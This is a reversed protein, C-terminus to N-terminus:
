LSDVKRGALARNIDANMRRAVFGESAQHLAQSADNIEGVHDGKLAARLVDMAATLTAREGDDLLAADQRMAETLLRLADEGEGRAELLRRAEWDDEAYAYADKLMAAIEGEGLGYSPKITIGARVGTSKEIASVSLLGDADVQFSVKIRATGAAMPPIDSLTFVGLSRCDAVREREGQVVNIRMATQGDRHTTFEQHKEIPITENRHVVKEVLGGMTEVGLSLPIVDLLLWDDGGNGALVNAQAAAGLAVVEDPNIKDYLPRGFFNAVLRRLSPMRTSGGVLVVAQIQEKAIAADRLVGECIDLTRRTLVATEAVFEAATIVCSDSGVCVSAKDKESLVEKAERAAALLLLEEAGSLRSLGMKEKARAAIVRDYDDGGLATDGGVAVVEFVGRTFRLLSLDFTGGGLDYVIYHGEAANDLGYALAAATPENLMRLVPLGALRCADRTAQRQADDFYAPVTVVAGDIDEENTAALAQRRLARLIDASVEVPSKDGGATQIKVMGDDGAYRYAYAVAVDAKGRGMLRKVSTITNEPDRERMALAASGITTEGAAYHVASPMLRRGDSDPYIIRNGDADIGAVLSNTTGLDVGVAFKRRKPATPDSIQLLM